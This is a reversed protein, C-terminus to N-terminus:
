GRAPLRGAAPPLRVQRAPQYGCALPLRDRQAPPRSQVPLRRRPERTACLGCRYDPAALIKLATRRAAALDMPTASPRSTQLPWRRGARCRGACRRWRRRGAHGHPARVSRGAVPEPRVAGRNRGGACQPTLVTDPPPPPLPPPTHPGTTRAATEGSRRPHGNRAAHGSTERPCPQRPGPYGPQRPPRSSGHRPPRNRSGRSLGCSARNGPPSGPRLM